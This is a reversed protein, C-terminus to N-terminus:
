CMCEHAMVVHMSAGLLKRLKMGLESALKVKSRPVAIYEKSQGAGVLLAALIRLLWLQCPPMAEM